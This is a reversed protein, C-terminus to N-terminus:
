RNPIKLQVWILPCFALLLHVTQEYAYMPFRQCKCFANFFIASSLMNVNGAAVVIAVAAAVAVAVAVGSVNEADILAFTLALLQFFVVVVAVSLM